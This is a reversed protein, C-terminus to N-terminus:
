EAIALEYAVALLGRHWLRDFLVGRLDDTRHLKKIVGFTTRIFLMNKFCYVYTLFGDMDTSM